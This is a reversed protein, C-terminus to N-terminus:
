SHKSNWLEVWGMITRLGRSIDRLLVSASRAFSDQRVGNLLKEREEVLVALKYFRAQLLRRLFRFRARSTVRFDGIFLVGNDDPSGSGSRGPRLVFEDRATKQLADLMMRVSVLALLHMTSEQCCNKCGHLRSLSEVIEGEMILASDIPLSSAIQQETKLKVICESIASICNCQATWKPDPLSPAGARRGSVPRADPDSGVGPHMYSAPSASSTSFPIAVPRAPASEFRSSKSSETLGVTDQCTHRGLVALLDFSHDFMHQSAPLANNSSSISDTRFFDDLQQDLCLVSIDSPHRQHPNQQQEQEQQQQKEQQPPSARSAISDFPGELTTISIGPSRLDTGAEDFLEVPSSATPGQFDVLSSMDEPFSPLLPFAAIDDLDMPTGTPLFALSNITSQTGTDDLPNDGSPHELGAIMSVWADEQRQNSDNSESISPGGAAAASVPTQRVAITDADTLGREATPAPSVPSPSTRADPGAKTQALSGSSSDETASKKARPRGMRRSLSYVCELKQVSCRRCTPKEHGCKVKAAQCSDCSTRYKPARATTRAVSAQAVMSTRSKILIQLPVVLGFSDRVYHISLPGVLVSSGKGSEKAHATRALHAIPTSVKDESRIVERQGPRCANSADRPLLTNMTSAQHNAARGMAQVPSPLFPPHPLAASRAYTHLFLHRQPMRDWHNVTDLCLQRTFTGASRSGQATGVAVGAAVKYSDRRQESNSESTFAFTCCSLGRGPVLTGFRRALIAIYGNFRPIRHGLHGRHIRCTNLPSPVKVPSLLSRVLIGRYHHPPRPVRPEQLAYAVPSETHLQPPLQIPQTFRM